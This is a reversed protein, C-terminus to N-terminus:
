LLGEAVEQCCRCNQHMKSVSMKFMATRYESVLCGIVVLFGIVLLTYSCGSIQTCFCDAM